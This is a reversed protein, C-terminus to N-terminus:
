EHHTLKRKVLDVLQNIVENNTDDCTYSMIISRADQLNNVSDLRSIAQDYYEQNGNFIERIYLFKDNLGIAESLNTVPKTKLIESVDEDHKRGGLQENYSAPRNLYQDAITVSEFQKKGTSISESIREKSSNGPIVSIIEEKNIEVSKVSTIEETVVVPGTITKEFTDEPNPEEKNTGNKNDADTIELDQLKKLLAIIEGASKCKSKVLEVQLVPVGPYKKLDDIIDCADNLDKIIIDITANLDM